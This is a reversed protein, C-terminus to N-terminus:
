LMNNKVPIPIGAPGIESEFEMGSIPALTSSAGRNPLDERVREPSPQRPRSPENSRGQQSLVLPAMPRAGRGLM